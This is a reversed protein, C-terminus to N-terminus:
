AAKTMPGSPCLMSITQWSGAALVVEDYPGVARIGLKALYEKARSVLRLVGPCATHRAM